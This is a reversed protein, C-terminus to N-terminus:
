SRDVVKIDFDGEKELIRKRIEEVKTHPELSWPVSSEEEGRARQRGGGTWWAGYFFMKRTPKEMQLGRALRVAM